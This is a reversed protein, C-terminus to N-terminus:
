GRSPLCTRGDTPEDMGKANVTAQRLLALLLQARLPSETDGARRWDAPDYGVLSDSGAGTGLIADGDERTLGTARGRATAAQRDVPEVYGNPPDTPPNPKIISIRRGVADCEALVVEGDPMTAIDGIDDIVAAAFDVSTADVTIHGGLGVHLLGDPGMVVHVAPRVHVIQTQQM